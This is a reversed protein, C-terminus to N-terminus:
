KHKPDRTGDLSASWGSRSFTRLFDSSPNRYGGPGPPQFLWFLTLFSNSLRSLTLKSDTTVRAFSRWGGFGPLGRHWLPGPFGNQSKKKDESKKYGPQESHGFPDWLIGRQIALPIGCQYNRRLPPQKYIHVYWAFPRTRVSVCDPCSGTVMSLNLLKGHHSYRCGTCWTTPFGTRYSWSLIQSYQALKTGERQTSSDPIYIHKYIYICIHRYGWDTPWFFAWFLSVSPWTLLFGCTTPKRGKKTFVFRSRLKRIVTEFLLGKKALLVRAKWHKKESFPNRPLGALKPSIRPLGQDPGFIAM